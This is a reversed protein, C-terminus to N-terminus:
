LYIGLFAIRNRSLKGVFSMFRFGGDALRTRAARLVRLLSVAVSSCVKWGVGVGVDVDVCAWAHDWCHPAGVQPQM